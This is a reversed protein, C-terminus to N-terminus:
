EIPENQAESTDVRNPPSVTSGEAELRRARAAQLEKGLIREEERLRALVPEIEPEFVAALVDRGFRRVIAAFHLDSPWQGNLLNEAIKTSADIDVALRKMAAPGSYRGRLYAKMRERPRDEGKDLSIRGM